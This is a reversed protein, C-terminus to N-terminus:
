TSDERAKGSKGYGSMAKAIEAYFAASSYNIQKGKGEYGLLNENLKLMFEQFWTTKSDEYVRGSATPKLGAKRCCEAVNRVLLHWPPTIVVPTGLQRIGALRREADRAMTELNAYIRIDGLRDDHIKGIKAWADAATRLGKAVRELLAPQGKGPSRVAAASNAGEEIAAQQTLFSSCCETIEARLRTSAEASLPVPLPNTITAWREDSFSLLERRAAM